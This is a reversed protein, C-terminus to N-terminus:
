RPIGLPDADDPNIKWAERFASQAEAEKGMIILRQGRLSQTTADYARALAARDADSAGRVYPAVPERRACLESFIQFWALDRNMVLASEYEVLPLDDEHTPDNASMSQCTRRAFLFYDLLSAPGRVGVKALDEAVAPEAMRRSLEAMDISLPETHGIVITFANVTSNVYWVSTDPFVSSFAKLISRLNSPTLSYIPLWQSVVGGPRLQERCRRYYDETYLAGNGAYRPHVSDSLIVDFPDGRALLYNRGDKHVVSLRPDDLVGHNVAGFHARSARIIGMSLEAVVIRRVPHRAVSYATGGSGFGIHLVDGREKALLLPLHGQLKQIALLDPSTGAVNVGNAAISLWTGQTGTKQEVSVTTDVDEVLDVIRSPELANKFVGASRLVSAHPLALDLGSFWAIAVVARALSSRRPPGSLVAGLAASITSVFLMSRQIGLFPIFLAPAAVAGVIAGVTNWAYLVGVSRSAREAPGTVVAVLLPFQVGMLVTPPLLIEATALFSAFAFAPYSGGLVRTLTSLHVSLRTLQWVLLPLDLALFVQALSLCRRPMWGTRLLRVGIAGGIALGLLFVTLMTAYAYVSSGLYLVLTRTWLVESALGVVGCLFAMVLWGLPAPAAFRPPPAPLDGAGTAPKARTLLYALLGAAVSGLVGVSVSGRMGLLPLLVYGAAASGVAAGVTNCTYLFGIERAVADPAAGLGVYRALVPLTAGMLVTPALLLPLVLAFRLLVDPAGSLERPLLRGVLAPLAAAVPISLAALAAIGLELVAYAKGPDRLRDGVRGALFAGLALGGMFAVLITSVAYVTAGFLLTLERMWIVQYVLAAAGSLAFVVSLGPRLTM